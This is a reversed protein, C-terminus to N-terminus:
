WWSNYYVHMGNKIAERSAQIFQLDYEKYHDDSDDGFFFGSTSPLDGRNIATELQEIDTLTLQVPQCNFVRKNVSGATLSDMMAPMSKNIEKQIDTLMQQTENNIEVPKGTEADIATSIINIKDGSMAAPGVEGDYGQANAKTNYLSEMWGQLNPHKRWQAFKFVNDLKDQETYEDDNWGIYFDTNDPHPRVAFAYQDLGM